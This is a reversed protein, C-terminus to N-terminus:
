GRLRIPSVFIAADDSSMSGRVSTVHLLSRISVLSSDEVDLVDGAGTEGIFIKPFLPFKQLFLLYFNYSYYTYNQSCHFLMIPLVKLMNRGPRAQM